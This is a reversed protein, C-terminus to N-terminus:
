MQELARGNQITEDMKGKVDEPKLSKGTAMAEQMAAAQQRDKVFAGMPGQLLMQQQMTYRAAAGESQKAQERSVIPGMQKRITEEMKKMAAQPDTKMLDEIQFAGRLGGPGGTQASMFAEQGMSLKSMQSQLNQAMEIANKTPVGVSHLRSVYEEMADSLGKTMQNVDVGGYVFSKFAEASGAIASQVDVLRANLTTSVESMRASYQLAQGTNAGYANMAEAMDNQVDKMDRGSGTAYQIAASLLSTNENGVLVSDGFNKMGGPLDKLVNMFSQMHEADLGTAAM